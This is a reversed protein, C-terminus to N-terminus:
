LCRVWYWDPKFRRRGTISLVLTLTLTITNLVVKLLIETVNHHNFCTHICWCCLIMENVRFDAHHDIHDIKCRYVILYIEAIKILAVDIQTQKLWLTLWAYKYIPNPSITNLAVKLLMEAIDRLDSKNTSSVPTCPSFWLGAALWQCVKDCLTTDLVGRRIHIQVWLMVIVVLVAGM